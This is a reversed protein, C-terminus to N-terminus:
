SLTPTLLPEAEPPLNAAVGIVTLLPVSLLAALVWATVSALPGGLAIMPAHFLFAMSGIKASVGLMWAGFSSIGVQMGAGIQTGLAQLDPRIAHRAAVDKVSGVM